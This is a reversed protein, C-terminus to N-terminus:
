LLRGSVPLDAVHYVKGHNGATRNRRGPVQVPPIEDSPLVGQSRKEEPVCRRGKGRLFQRNRRWRRRGARNRRGPPCQPPPTPSRAPPWAHAAPTRGPVPGVPARPALRRGATPQRPPS